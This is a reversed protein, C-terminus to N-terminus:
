FLHGYKLGKRKDIDGDVSRTGPPVFIDQRGDYPKDNKGYDQEYAQRVRDWSKRIEEKALTLNKRLQDPSQSNELNSLVSQLFALERETVNGLAGGTPSSQRMSNLEDFGINARITDLSARLDRASTGAVKDMTAGAMGATWYNVRPLAEDIARSLRDTRQQAAQLSAFAKPQLKAREAANKAAEEAATKDAVYGPRESPKLQRDVVPRTVSPNTQSPAVYGSGIDLFKDSRKMRLYQEKQEPSLSNFYHWERVNSPAETSNPDRKALASLGYKTYDGGLGAVSAEFEPLSIKGGILGTGGGYVDIPNGIEDTQQTGRSGLLGQLKAQRQKEAEVEALKTGLLKNQLLGSVAGQQQQQYGQLGQGLAQGLSVKTPSPGSAALLNAGLGLLGQMNAFRQEEPSLLGPYNFPGFM